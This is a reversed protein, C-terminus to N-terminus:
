RVVVVGVMRPHLSCFYRYIGPKVLTFSFADDSDLPQSKFARPTADNVVTHPIDDHNVWQVTTGARVTLTPPTFSFNDIRIVAVGPADGAAPVADLSLLALALAMARVALLGGTCQRTLTKMM